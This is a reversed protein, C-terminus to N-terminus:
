KSSWKTFCVTQYLERVRSLEEHSLKVTKPSRCTVGCTLKSLHQPGLIVHMLEHAIYVEPTAIKASYRAAGEATALYRIRDLCLVVELTSLRRVDAVSIYFFLAAASIGGYLNESVDINHFCPHTISNHEAVTADRIPITHYVPSSRLRTVESVSLSFMKHGIQTNIADIARATAVHAVAPKVLMPFICPTISWDLESKFTKHSCSVGLVILLLLVRLFKRLM